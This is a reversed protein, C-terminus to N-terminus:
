FVKVVRADVENLSKETIVWRNPQSMIQMRCFMKNKWVNNQIQEYGIQSIECRSQPSWQLILNLEDGIGITETAASNGGQGGREALM